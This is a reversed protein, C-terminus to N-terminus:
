RCRSRGPPSNRSGSPTLDIGAGIVLEGECEADAREAVVGADIAGAAALGDESVRGLRGEEDRGLLGAQGDRLQVAVERPDVLHREIAVGLPHDGHVAVRIARRDGEDLAGRPREEILAAPMEASDPVSGSVGLIAVRWRFPFSSSAPAM